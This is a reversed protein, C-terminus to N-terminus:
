VATTKQSQGSFDRYLKFVFVLWFITLVSSFIGMLLMSLGMMLTAFFSTVPVKLIAVILPNVSLLFGFIFYIVIMILGLLLNYGVFRWFYPQIVKRSHCLALNGKQGDLLLAYASFAYFISFVIGPIILLLMWLFVKVFVILSVWCFPWFFKTSEQYMAFPSIVGGQDAKDIARIATIQWYCTLIISVLVYVIMVPLSKQAFLQLISLPLNAILVIFCFPVWNKKFLAWTESFIESFRKKGDTM